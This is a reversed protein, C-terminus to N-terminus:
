DEDFDFYFDKFSAAPGCEKNEFYKLYQESSNFQELIISKHCLNKNEKQDFYEPYSSWKYNEPFKVLGTEIPNKHIYYSTWLLQENDEVLVAKFQDQLVAGIREYKKNFYKSYGTCIKSILKTISLDTKQQILLHFHNPMLCYSILDFSNLPLPKRRRESRSLNLESKQNPFLNEKLRFLFVKFDYEEEFIDMKNVGRNYVHYIGGKSFEKYDRRNMRM